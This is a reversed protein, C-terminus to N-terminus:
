RTLVALRFLHVASRITSMHAPVVKIPDMPGSLIKGSEFVSDAGEEGEIRCYDISILEPASFWLLGKWNAM